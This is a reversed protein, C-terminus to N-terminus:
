QSCHSATRMHSKECTKTEILVIVATQRKWFGGSQPRSEFLEPTLSFYRQQRTWSRGFRQLSAVTASLLPTTYLSSNWRLIVALMYRRVSKWGQMVSASSGDHCCAMLQKWVAEQWNRKLAMLETLWHNWILEYLVSCWRIIGQAAASFLGPASHWPNSILDNEPRFRIEDPVLVLNASCKFCFTSNRNPLM